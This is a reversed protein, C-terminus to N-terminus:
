SFKLNIKGWIRQIAMVKTQCLGMLQAHAFDGKSGRHNVANPAFRTDKNFICNIFFFQGFNYKLIYFLTNRHKFIYIYVNTSTQFLIISLIQINRRSRFGTYYKCPHWNLIFVM